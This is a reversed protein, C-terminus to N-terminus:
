IQHISYRCLYLKVPNCSGCMYMYEHVDIVQSKQMIVPVSPKKKTARNGRSKILIRRGLDGAKRTPTGLTVLRGGTPSPSPISRLRKKGNEGGKAALM